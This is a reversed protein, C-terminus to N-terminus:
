ELASVLDRAKTADKLSAVQIAFPTPATAAKEVSPSPRQEAEKKEARRAQPKTPATESPAEPKTSSKTPEGVPKQASKLRAEEKKDTLAEYFDFSMNDPTVKGDSAGGKAERQLTQERLAHLENKINEIDFRVPSHGRGVIVGLTFMWLM